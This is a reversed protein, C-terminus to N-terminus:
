GTLHDRLEEVSMMPNTRHIVRHCNACVIALDSLRTTQSEDLEAVPTRHHCEAMGAGLDGYFEEFDFGCAECSLRGTKELVKEKKRKVARRDRERQRHVRTLVKGERFEQVEQHKTEANLADAHVHDRNARIASATRHLRELDSAFDDWVERELQSGRSLGVGEYEPDISLFNGLKMSVASANRFKAERFEREHIPLENLLQSLVEVEPHSDDLQKRGCRFYLDLALIIEDRTWNPNRPM